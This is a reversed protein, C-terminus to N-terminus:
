LASAPVHVKHVVRGTSRNYRGMYHQDFAESHQREASLFGSSGHWSANGSLVTPLVCCLHSM